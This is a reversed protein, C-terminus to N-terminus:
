LVVWRQKGKMQSLLLHHGGPPVDSCEGSVDYMHMFGQRWDNPKILKVDHVDKFASSLLAAGKDTIANRNLWLETVSTNGQLATAFHEAGKDTIKNGGLNIGTVVLSPNSRM